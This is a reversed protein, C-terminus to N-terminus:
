WAAAGETGLKVLGGPTLDYRTMLTLPPSYAHVSVAVTSAAANRVDHIYRPGFARSGGAGVPKALVRGTAVGGVVRREMLTGWVVTFAGSAEGHDHFGTEQGPLWSIVWVEHSEDLHIREYWRGAPNLRVRTLWEAPTSALRRVLDALQRAGLLRGPQVSAPSAPRITTSM